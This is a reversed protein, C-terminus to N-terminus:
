TSGWWTTTRPAGRPSNTLSTLGGTYTRTNRAVEQMWRAPKQLFAVPSMIVARLGAVIPFLMGCMLGLDHYFPLWSVVTIDPPAVMGVDEFTDSALQGLNVMMNHHTVM